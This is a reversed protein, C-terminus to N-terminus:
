AIDRVEINITGVNFSTMHEIAKTCEKQLAAGVKPIAAGDAIVALLRIRLEEQRKDTVIKKIEVIDPSEKAIMEVIDSIVKESIYYGGLYSYTPRVVARESAEDKNKGWGRFIRLPDMFYGSFQRKLQAAPVPVVHKGQLNRQKQAAERQDATTIDEIHIMESIEPMGLREAIQEAMRDSTGLILINEPALEKLKRVTEARRIDSTFLAAKIAGIKTPERKASTGCIINNKYIFLGDDIIADIGRDRCLDMAQYSKGTGSRGVLAYVKM